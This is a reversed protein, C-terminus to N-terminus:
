WLLSVYFIHVTNYFRSLLARLPIIKTRGIGVWLGHTQGCRLAADIMDQRTLPDLRLVSQHCFVTRRIFNLLETGSLKQLYPLLTSYQDLPNRCTTSLCQFWIAFWSLCKLRQIADILFTPSRATSHDLKQWAVLTEYSLNM